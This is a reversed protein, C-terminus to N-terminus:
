NGKVMKAVTVNEGSRPVYDASKNEGNVQIQYGDISENRFAKKFLERITEGESIVPTAGGPVKTILVSYANTM